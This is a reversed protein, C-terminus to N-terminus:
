KYAEFELFNSFEVSSFSVNFNDGVAPYIKIYDESYDTCTVMITSNDKFKFIVKYSLSKGTKDGPHKTKGLDIFETENLSAKIDNVVKQKKNNCAELDKIEVLGSLYHIKYKKDKNKYFIQWAEYSKSNKLWGGSSVFKKNPWHYTKSTNLEKKTFYKLASDGISMGEIEFDKIDDARAWPQFCLTLILILFIKKL